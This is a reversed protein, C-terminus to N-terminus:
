FSFVGAVIHHPVAVEWGQGTWRILYAWIVRLLGTYSLEIGQTDKVLYVLGKILFWICHEVRVGM